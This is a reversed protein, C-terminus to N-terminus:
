AVALHRRLERGCPRGAPRRARWEDVVRVV